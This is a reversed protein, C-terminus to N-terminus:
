AKVCIKQERCQSTVFVKACEYKKYLFKRKKTYYFSLKKKEVRTQKQVRNEQVVFINETQVGNVEM